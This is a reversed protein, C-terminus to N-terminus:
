HPDSPQVPHARVYESSNSVNNLEDFLHQDTVQSVERSSSRRQLDIIVISQARPVSPAVNIAGTLTTRAGVLLCSCRRSFDSPSM